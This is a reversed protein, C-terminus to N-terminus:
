ENFEFFVKALEPQDLAKLKLKDADASCKFACSLWERAETIRDLKALFCAFHYALADSTPFRDKVLLLQAIAAETEGKADLARVCDVWFSLVNPFLECCSEALTQLDDSRKTEPLHHLATQARELQKKGKEAAKGTRRNSRPLGWPCVMGARSRFPRTGAPRLNDRRSVYANQRIARCGPSSIGLSAFPLVM